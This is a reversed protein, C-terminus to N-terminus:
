KLTQNLGHLLKCGSFLFKGKLYFLRRKEVCKHMGYFLIEDNITINKVWYMFVAELHSYYHLFNHLM